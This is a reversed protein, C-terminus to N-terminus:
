SATAEGSGSVQGPDKMLLVGAIVPLILLGTILYATGAGLTWYLYAGALPGIARALSGASRFLGMVLGQRSAESQLSALGTLSPQVLASGLALPALVLLSMLVSPSTFAFAVIAPACLAVGAAAMRREGLRPVLQRVLVGQGIVLLMGIYLFILGISMPSLGFELKYFFVMTFEFGAFGLFFLFNWSLIGLLGLRKAAAFPNAVWPHERGAAPKTESLFFLNLLASVGSMGFSLLACFTFPHTWRTSLFSLDVQAALGGIAPGLIFGIGFVAGLLGMKKTREAPTSLDAMAASAVGLNGASLGGIIRAALFITFTFAVSWFLYSLALGASTLLLIPRRGWRDSLRGWLPSVGFQLLSYLSGLGGGVVVILEARSRRDPPLAQLLWDLFGPLWADSAHNAAGSLYYDLLEPVVPFIISFGILDLLVVLLVLRENRGPNAVSMAAM